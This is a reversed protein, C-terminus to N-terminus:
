RWLPDLQIIDVQCHLPKSLSINVLDSCDVRCSIKVGHDGAPIHVQDNISHVLEGGTDNVQHGFRKQVLSVLFGEFAGLNEPLAANHNTIIKKREEREKGRM